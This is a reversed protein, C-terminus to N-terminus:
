SDSRPWLARAEATTKECVVILFERVRMQVDRLIVEVTKQLSATENMVPLIVTVSEFREVAPYDTM